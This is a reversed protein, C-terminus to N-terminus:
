VFGFYPKWHNKGQKFTQITSSIAMLFDIGLRLQKLDSIVRSRRDEHRQM